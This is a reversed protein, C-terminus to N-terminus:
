QNRLQLIGPVMVEGSNQFVESSVSITALSYHHHRGQEAVLSIQNFVGEAEFTITVHCIDQSIEAHLPM